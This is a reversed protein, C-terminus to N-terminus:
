CLHLLYCCQAFSNSLNYVVHCLEHTMDKTWLQAALRRSLDMDAYRQIENPTLQPVQFPMDRWKLKYACAGTRVNLVM